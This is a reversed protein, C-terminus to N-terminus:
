LKIQLYTPRANTYSASQTAAPEEMPHVFLGSMQVRWLNKTHTFKLIFHIYGTIIRCKRLPTYTSSFQDLLNFLPNLTKARDVGALIFTTYFVWKEVMLLHPDCGLIILPSCQAPLLCKTASLQGSVGDPPSFLNSSQLHLWKFGDLCNEALHPLTIPSITHFPWLM